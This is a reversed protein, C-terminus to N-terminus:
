GNNEPKEENNEETKAAKKRKRTKPKKVAVVVEQEEVVNEVLVDPEEVVVTEPAIYKEKEVVPEQIEPKTEKYEVTNVAYLVKHLVQPRKFRKMNAGALHRNSVMRM